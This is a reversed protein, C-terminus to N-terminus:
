SFWEQNQVVTKFSEKKVALRKCNKEKQLPVVGCDNLKLSESFKTIHSKRIIGAEKLSSLYVEELDALPFVDLTSDKVYQKVSDFALIKLLEEKEDVQQFDPENEKAKYRKEYASLCGKHYFFEAARVDGSSVMSLMRSDGLAAAMKQLNATFDEVYSRAAKKGGAAHLKYQATRKPHKCDFKDEEDCFMCLIAKNVVSPGTQNRTQVHMMDRESLESAPRKRKLAREYNLDNFKDYCGKHFQFLDSRLFEETDVSLLRDYLDQTVAGPIKNFKKLRATFTKASGERM